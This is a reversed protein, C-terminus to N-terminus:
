PLLPDRPLGLVREAITNRQIESTGGGITTGRTRLFGWTWRGGEVAHEDTASLTGYPGLMDVALENLLQETETTLLRSISSTPGPEGHEHVHAITRTASVLMIRVLSEAGALRQRIEPDDAAGRERALSILEDVVRRYNMAVNLALASREHGLSTRAISWGGNEEGIRNEVPARVDDLFVECFHSGGTIDQIPRVTIGPTDRAIVLYSIGSQRSDPEGTRVLCYLWDANDAESSWIKQGNVVYEDGDRRARTRLAPLDSGAEPESWGQAWLEQAHLMPPLWRGRQEDTGHRIITPGAIFMGTGPARPVRARGIEEAYVVQKDFPLEMGGVEAPWGPAAYGHQALTAHWRCTWEMRGAADRPPRGPSHETLFARLRTRFENVTEVTEVSSM